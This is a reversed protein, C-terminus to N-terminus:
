IGGAAASSGATSGATKAAATQMSSGGAYGQVGAAGIRLAAGLLTPKQVQSFMRNAEQASAERQSDANLHIRENALGTQMLSDFLLGEVSGGLQLGAEGAAVKIRAQEKRAQRARDNLEATEQKYIEDQQSQFQQKIAANQADAAQIEGVVTAATSVVAVVAM